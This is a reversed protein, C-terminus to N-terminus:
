NVGQHFLLYKFLNYSISQSEFGSLLVGVKLIQVESNDMLKQSYHESFLNALQTLEMSLSCHYLEGTPYKRAQKIPGFAYANTSAPLGAEFTTGTNYTAGNQATYSTGSESTLVWPMIDFPKVSYLDWGYLLQDIIPYTKSSIFCATVDTDVDIVSQSRQNMGAAIAFSSQAKMDVMQLGQQNRLQQFVYAPNRKFSIGQTTFLNSLRGMKLRSNEPLNDNIYKQVAKQAGDKRAKIASIMNLQNIWFWLSGPNSLGRLINSM